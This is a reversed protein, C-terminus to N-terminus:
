APNSNSALWQNATTIDQPYTAPHFILSLLPDPYLAISGLLQDLQAPTLTVPRRRHSPPQRPSISRIAPKTPAPFKDPRRRKRQALSPQRPPGSFLLNAEM